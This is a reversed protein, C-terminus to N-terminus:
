LNKENIMNTSDEAVREVAAMVAQHESNGFLLGSPRHFNAVLKGTSVNYIRVTCFGNLMGGTKHSTVKGVIVLDAKHKQAEEIALKKPATNTGKLIDESEKRLSDGRIVEIKSENELNSIYYDTSEEVFDPNGEFRPVFVIINNKKPFNAQKINVISPNACGMLIIPIVFLITLRLNM